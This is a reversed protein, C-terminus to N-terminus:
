LSILLMGGVTRCLTEGPKKAEDSEQKPTPGKSDKMAGDEEPEKLLKEKKAKSNGLGLEDDIDEEDVTTRSNGNVILNAHNQQADMLSVFGSESVDVPADLKFFTTATPTAGDSEAAYSSGWWSGSDRPQGGEEPDELDGSSPGDLESVGSLHHNGRVAQSFYQSQAFTTTAADASAVRPPPTNKRSSPRVHDMASSARDIPSRTKPVSFASMASGTRKPLSGYVPAGNSLSPSPSPSKSTNTSSIASYHSFAAAHVRPAEPLPGEQATPPSPDAEGAVFKTLTGGLWGGISDLSPKSIKGGIWSHGKDLDPDGHLLTSFERLQEVVLPTLYPSPLTRGSM